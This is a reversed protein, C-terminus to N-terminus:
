LRMYECYFPNRKCKASVRKKLELIHPEIKYTYQGSNEIVNHMLIGTSYPIIGPPVKGLGHFVAIIDINKQRRAAFLSEAGETLRGKLLRSADDLVLLGNRFSYHAAELIPFMTESYSLGYKQSPRSQRKIYKDARVFEPFVHGEFEEGDLRIKASSPKTEQLGEFKGWSKNFGFFKTENAPNIVLVNKRYASVM